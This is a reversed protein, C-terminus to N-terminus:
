KKRPKSETVMATGYGDHWRVHFYNWESWVGGCKRRARILCCPRNLLRLGYEDKPMTEDEGVTVYKYWLRPNRWRWQSKGHTGHRRKRWLQIKLEDRNPADIYLTFGSDLDGEMQVLRAMESAQVKPPRCKSVNSHFRYFIKKGSNTYRVGIYSNPAPDGPLLIRTTKDVANNPAFINKEEKPLSDLCIHHPTRAEKFYYNSLDQGWIDFKVRIFGRDLYALGPHSTLSPTRHVVRQNPNAEIACNVLVEGDFRYRVGNSIFNVAPNPVVAGKDNVVNYSGVLSQADGGKLCFKPTERDFYPYTTSWDDADDNLFYFPLCSIGEANTGDKGDAGRVSAYAALVQAEVLTPTDGNDEVLEIDIVGRSVVKRLKDPYADAPVLVALEYNLTGAGLNHNKCVIHMRGEDNFCNSLTGDISSAVFPCYPNSTWLNVEWDYDPWDVTNGLNDKYALLFDFDSKYNYKPM